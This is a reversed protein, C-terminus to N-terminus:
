PSAIDTGSRNTRSLAYSPKVPLSPVPVHPQWFSFDVYHLWSVGTTWGASKANKYVTCSPNDSADTATGISRNRWAPRFSLSSTSGHWNVSCQTSLLAGLAGQGTLVSRGDTIGVRTDPRRPGTRLLRNGRTM